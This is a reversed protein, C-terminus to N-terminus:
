WCCPVPVGTVDSDGTCGAVAGLVSTFLMRLPPRIVRGSPSSALTVEVIEALLVLELLRRVVREEESLESLLLRRVASFMLNFLAETGGLVLEKLVGEASRPRDVVGVAAALRGRESVGM